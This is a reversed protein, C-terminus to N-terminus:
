PKAELPQSDVDACKRRYCDDIIRVVETPEDSLHLLEVDEPSVLKRELLRSRTWDLLGQWHESGVLVVPFNLIKQTQILVLVEFLEDLTGFGGPFLVLGEAAKVLMTKRAYFHRFTLEIDLYSNARQEHPLEINFGVSTGGAEQAGRNAAEMTGPGGGTVVAFGAEVLLRGILRAQAYVPDDPGIRASGFITVGPKGIRDVAAFGDRFEQAILEVHEDLHREERELIRRDEM